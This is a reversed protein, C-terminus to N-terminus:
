IVKSFEKEMQKLEKEEFADPSASVLLIAKKVTLYDLLAQLFKIVVNFSNHTVMYELGDLVVLRGEDEGEGGVFNKIEHNLLELDTPSICIDGKANSLWIFELNKM